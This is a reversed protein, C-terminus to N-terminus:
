LTYIPSTSGGIVARLQPHGSLNRQGHFVGDSGAALRAIQTWRGGSLMQVSVQGPGPAKGWLTVASGGAPM